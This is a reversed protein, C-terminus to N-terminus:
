FAKCSYAPNGLHYCNERSNIKCSALRKKKSSLIGLVERLYFKINKKRDPSEKM